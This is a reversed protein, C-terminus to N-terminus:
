TQFFNWPSVAYSSPFLHFGKLLCLLFLTANDSAKRTSYVKPLVVRKWELGPVTVPCSSVWCPFLRVDLICGDSILTWVIVHYIRYLFKGSDQFCCPCTVTKQCRCNPHQGLSEKASAAVYILDEAKASHSSPREGYGPFESSELPLRGRSKNKFSLSNHSQRLLSRQQEAHM